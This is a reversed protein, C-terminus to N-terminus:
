CPIILDIVCSFWAVVLVWTLLLVKAVSGVRDVLAISIIKVIEIQRTLLLFLCFRISGKRQYTMISSWRSKSYM